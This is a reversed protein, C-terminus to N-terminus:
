RGFLLVNGVRAYICLWAYVELSGALASVDCAAIAACGKEYLRMSSASETRKYLNAAASIPAPRDDLETHVLEVVRSVWAGCMGILSGSRDQSHSRGGCSRTSNSAREQDLGCLAFEWDPTAGWDSMVRGRYGWTDKLVDNILPANGGAYDGNVKNCGTMVSGPHSREFALLDSERHAPRRRLLM